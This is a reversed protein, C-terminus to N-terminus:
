LFIPEARDLSYRLWEALLKYGFQLSKLYLQVDGGSQSSFGKLRNFHAQKYFDSRLHCTYSRIEGAPSIM